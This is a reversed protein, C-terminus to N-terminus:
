LESQVYLKSDIYSFLVQFSLLIVTKQSTSADWDNIFELLGDLQEQVFDLIVIENSYFTIFDVLLNYFNMMDKPEPQSLILESINIFLDTEVMKQYYIPPILSLIYILASKVDYEFENFDTICKDFFITNLSIDVVSTIESLDTSGIKKYTESFLIILNPYLYDDPPHYLFQSILSNIYHIIEDIPNIYSRIFSILINIILEVNNNSVICDIPSFINLFYWFQYSLRGILRDDLFVAEFLELINTKFTSFCNSEAIQNCLIIIEMFSEARHYQSLFLSWEVTKIMITQDIHVLTLETELLQHFIDINYQPADRILAIALDIICCNLQIDSHIENLRLFISEIDIVDIKEPYYQPILTLILLIENKSDCDEWTNVLRNVLADIGSYITEIPIMKGKISYRIVQFLEHKDSLDTSGISDNYADFYENITYKRKRGEFFLMEATNNSTLEKDIPSDRLVKSINEDKYSIDFM